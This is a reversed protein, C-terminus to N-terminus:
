RYVTVDRVEQTTIMQVVARQPHQGRRPNEVM